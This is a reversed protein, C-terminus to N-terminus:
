IEMCGLPRGRVVDEALWYLLAALVLPALLVELLRMM